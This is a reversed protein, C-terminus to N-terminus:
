WHGHCSHWRNWACRPVYGCPSFCPAVVPVAYTFAPVSYVNLVNHCGSYGWGYCM